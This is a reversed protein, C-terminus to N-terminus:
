IFLNPTEDKKTETYSVGACFGFLMLYNAEVYQNRQLCFVTRTEVKLFRKVITRFFKKM